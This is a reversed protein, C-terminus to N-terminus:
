PFYSNYTAAPMFNMNPIRTKEKILPCVPYISRSLFGATTSRKDSTHAKRGTFAITTIAQPMINSCKNASEISAQAM